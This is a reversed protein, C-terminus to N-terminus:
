FEKTAPSIDWYKFIRKLKMRMKVYPPKPKLPIGTIHAHAQNTSSPAHVVELVDIARVEKTIFHGVGHTQNTRGKPYKKTKLALCKKATTCYKEWNVSLNEGVPTFVHYPIDDYDELDTFRNIPVHYFLKDDDSIQEIEIKPM